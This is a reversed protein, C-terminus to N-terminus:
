WRHIIGFTGGRYVFSQREDRYSWGASVGWRRNLWREAGIRMTTTQVRTVDTATRIEGPRDGWGYEAELYSEGWYRRLLGSYSESTGRTGPVWTGRMRAYWSGQYKGVSAGYLDVSDDRFRMNRYAGSVEWGKLLAPATERRLGLGQFVEAAYVLRPTVDFDFSSQVYLNLYARPWLDVYADGALWQDEKGFRRVQAGVLAFSGWAFDRSLRTTAEYWGSRAPEFDTFEYDASIEWPLPTAGARAREVRAIAELPETEGPALDAWARYAEVASDYRDSWLYLDGLARRVDAYRPARRAAALLDAEAEDYRKEWAHVRGRGLLADPDDPHEALIETYAAIAAARDGGHALDRARALASDYSLGATEASLIAVALLSAIM